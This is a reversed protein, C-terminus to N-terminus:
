EVLTKIDGGLYQFYDLTEDDVVVKKEVHKVKEKASRYMEKKGIKKAVRKQKKENAEQKEAKVIREQKDRERKQEEQRANKRAAEQRKVLNYWPGEEQTPLKDKKVIYDITKINNNIDLEIEHLINIPQKGAM